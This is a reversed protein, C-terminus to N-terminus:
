LSREIAGAIESPKTSPAFRGIVKGNRDVLFKTFNWKIRETGLLGSRESKLYRYLPHTGAGNVEVKSFMPFSVGYNTTCFQAIEAESGPEQGGFQNSPFGLVVLGREGYTQYLEELERYQPTFGCRSATNVILLVKGRYEGLSTERGDITRASIQYIGDASKGAGADAMGKVRRGFM